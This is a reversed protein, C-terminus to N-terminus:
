RRSPQRSRHRPEFDGGLQPRGGGDAAHHREAHRHEPRRRARAAAADDARGLDHGGEHVADLGAILNANGGSDHQIVFGRATLRANPNAGRELLLRAIGVPDLEGSPKPNPRSFLWELTNMDVAHYLAGRGSRDVANVNAGKRVLVAAVDYHGNIIAMM